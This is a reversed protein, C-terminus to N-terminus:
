RWGSRVVLKPMSYDWAKRMDTEAHRISPSKGLWVETEEKNTIHVRIGKTKDATYQLNIEFPGGSSGYTVDRIMGYPNFVDGSLTPVKWEEGEELM